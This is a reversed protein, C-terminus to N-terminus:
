EGKNLENRPRGVRAFLLRLYDYIETTTAVTSRPNAGGGRQEIAITPPMDGRAILNDFVTTVRWRGDVKRMNEGDQFVMVAAPKDKSYQAPVYVSWDRTTGGFVKSAPASTVAM